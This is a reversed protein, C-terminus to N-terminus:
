RPTLFSSAVTPEVQRLLGADAGSPMAESLLRRYGPRTRSSRSSRGGAVPELLVGAAPEATGATAFLKGRKRRNHRLLSLRFLRLSHLEPRFIEGDGRLQELAEPVGAPDLDDLRQAFFLQADELEDVEGPELIRGYGYWRFISLSISRIWDKSRPLKM